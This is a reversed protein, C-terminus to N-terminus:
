LQVLIVSQNWVDKENTKQMLIGKIARNSADVSIKIRKEPNFHVLLCQRTLYKKMTDIAKKDENMISFKKEKRTLAYLPAAITAFKPIFRSFYNFLGLQSQLQKVNKPYPLSSLAKVKNSDPRIGKGSAIFGLFNFEMDGFSCKDIRVKLGYEQIKKLLLKLSECFSNFDKKMALLDDFYGLCHKYKLDKIMTNILQQFYAPSEALEMPLRTFQYKGDCTVFVTKAIEKPPLEIQYYGQALDLLAFYKMGRLAELYDDIRPMPYQKRKILRNLSRYDVVLRDNKDPRTVLIAPSGGEADSEEIIGLQLLKNIATKMRKRKDLSQPYPKNYPVSEEGIDITIPCLKYPVKGLDAPHKSFANHDLLIKYLRAKEEM